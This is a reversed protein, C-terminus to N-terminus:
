LEFHPLDKFSSFNGGWNVDSDIEKIIEYFKKFLKPNWDLKKDFTLFAIDFATSPNTNHKSQGGKANTIKKGKITRGIKYLEDQEEPSRYTCVLFPVPENSYIEKWKKLSFDFATALKFVLDKKDRSAM